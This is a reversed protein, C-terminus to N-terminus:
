VAYLGLKASITRWSLLCIFIKLLISWHLIKLVPWHSKSFSLQNRCTSDLVPFSLKHSLHDLIEWSTYTSIPRIHSVCSLSRWWASIIPWCLLLWHAKKEWQIRLSMKRSAKDTPILHRFKLYRMYLNLLMTINGEKREKRGLSGGGEENREKKM